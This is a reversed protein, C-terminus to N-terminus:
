ATVNAEGQSASKETPAPTTSVEGVPKMTVPDLPVGKVLLNHLKNIRELWASQDGEKPFHTAVVAALVSETVNRANKFQKDIDDIVNQIRHLYPPLANVSAEKAQPQTTAQEVQQYTAAKQYSVAQTETKQLNLDVNKLQGFDIKMNAAKQFAKEINGQYFHNALQDVQKFLSSIAKLEDKNLNGNVSFGFREQFKSSELQSTSEFYKTGSPGQEASQQKEYSQYAAYLQRFDVSVTDGEQTTLNLKMTQSYSYASQKQEVSAAKVAQASPTFVDAQLRPSSTNKLLQKNQDQHANLLSNLGPAGSQPGKSLLETVNDTSPLISSSM